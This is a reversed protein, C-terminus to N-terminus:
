KGQEKSRPAYISFGYDTWVVLNGRAKEEHAWHAMDLGGGRRVMGIQQRFAGFMMDPVTVPKSAKSM